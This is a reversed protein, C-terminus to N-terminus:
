NGAPPAAAGEPAAPAAIQVPAGPRVKVTGDVVVRDGAALGSEVVWAEGVWPGVEIPRVEAVDGAGVVYVFKGKQGQLVARQPVLVANPREIGLLRARVFQGPILTAAANPLEARLDVSGTEAGIMSDSFNVKGREPYVSGDALILEIELAETAPAALTHDAIAKRLALLTAEPVSFRVWIPQVQSIRTLLGKDGPEVLSGESYSARSSLGAIPAEVRTYSLDLKARDLRAQASLVGARAQEAEAVADDFQRRSTAHAALLPELRAVEREARSRRADAEALNAEAAQVEARYPAPDIVFLTQGKKVPRGEQYSRQLLIGSVRARVEVERSGEVRATYEYPMEVSRPAVTEIQVQPPPPTFGAQGAAQPGGCGALLAPLAVFSAARLLSRNLADEPTM